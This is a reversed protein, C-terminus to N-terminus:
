GRSLEACCGSDDLETRHKGEPGRRFTSPLGESDGELINRASVGMERRRHVAARSRCISCNKSAVVSRDDEEIAVVVEGEEIAAGLLDDGQAAVEGPFIEEFVKGAM